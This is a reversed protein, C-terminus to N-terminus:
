ELAQLSVLQVVAFPLGTSITTTHPCRACPVACRPGAVLDHRILIINTLQMIRVGCYAKMCKLVNVARCASYVFGNRCPLIAADENTGISNLDLTKKWQEPRRLFNRM